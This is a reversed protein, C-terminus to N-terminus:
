GNFFEVLNYQRVCKQAYRPLGVIKGARRCVLLRSVGSAIGELVDGSVAGLRREAYAYVRRFATTRFSNLRQNQLFSLELQKARM